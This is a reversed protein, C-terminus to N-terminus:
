YHARHYNGLQVIESAPRLLIRQRGVLLRRVARRHGRAHQLGEAPRAPHAAVTGADAVPDRAQRRGRQHVGTPQAGEVANDHVTRAAAVVPVPQAVAPVAGARAGARVTTAAQHGPVQAGEPQGTAGHGGHGRGGRRDVARGRRDTATAPRRM